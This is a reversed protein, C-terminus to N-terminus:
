PRSSGVTASSSHPSGSCLPSSDIVEPRPVTRASVGARLFSYFPAPRPQQGAPAWSPATSRDAGEKPFTLPPDGGDVHSDGRAGARSGGQTKRGSPASRFGAADGTGARVSSVPGGAVEVHPESGPFPPFGGRESPDAPHGARPVLAHVKGQGDGRRGADHALASGRGHDPGLSRGGAKGRAKPFSPHGAPRSRAEPVEGAGASRPRHADHGRRLGSQLRVGFRRPGRLGPSDTGQRLQ